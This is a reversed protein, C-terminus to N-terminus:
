LTFSVAAVNGGTGGTLRAASVALRTGNSSALTICNGTRGKQVATLTIVGAVNSATVVGSILANSHANIKAVLAAADATDDGDIEWESEGSPTSSATFTVGNITVTDAAAAAASTITGTAATSVEGDNAHIDIDVGRKAGSLAAQLYNALSQVSRAKDGSVVEELKDTHEMVVVTTYAM